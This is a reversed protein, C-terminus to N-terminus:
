PAPRAHAHSGDRRTRLARLVEETRRQEAESTARIEFQASAEAAVVNARTGGLLTGINVTTGREPDQLASVERLADLLEDIASM